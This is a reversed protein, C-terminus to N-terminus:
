SMKVRETKSKINRDSWKSCHYINGEKWVECIYIKKGPKPKGMGRNFNPKTQRQNFDLWRWYAEPKGHSITLEHSFLYRIGLGYCKALGSKESVTIKEKGTLKAWIEPDDEKRHSGLGMFEALTCISYGSEKIEALLNPYKAKKIDEYKMWGYDMFDKDKRNIIYKKLCEAGANKGRGKGEKGCKQM